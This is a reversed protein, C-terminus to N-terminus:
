FGLAQIKLFAPFFAVRTPMDNHEIYATDFLTETTESAEGHLTQYRTVHLDAKNYLVSCSGTM